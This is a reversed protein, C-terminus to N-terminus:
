ATVALQQAKRHLALLIEYERQIERDRHERRVADSDAALKAVRAAEALNEQMHEALATFHDRLARHVQRAVDRCEKSFKLFFDEVHRQVAMRAAAQRRHLRSGDEDRLTKGGFVAGAGLSVVNLLPLGALSTLLGFMVVGGYSGRLGTFVKQGLTFRGFEPRELESM